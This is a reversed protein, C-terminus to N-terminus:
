VFSPVGDVSGTGLIIMQAREFRQRVLLADGSSPTQVTWTFAEDALLDGYRVDSDTIGSTTALSTMVMVTDLLGPNLVGGLRHFPKEGLQRVVEACTDEFMRAARNMDSKSLRTAGIIFNNLFQKMPRKYNNWGERMAFFRLILEIDRLRRDPSDTGVIVRWSKNRNLKELMRFYDGDYICKRIEMPNLGPEHNRLREFIYYINTGDDTDEQQVITTRLIADRLRVQDDKPLDRFSRGEWKRTIGRLRFVHDDFGGRLFRVVSLIRQLGDIILLKGTARDRYLFVEPVPLGRLFSEILKSALLDSWIYEKKFDPVSIEGTNWLQEYVELTMDSSYYSVGDKIPDSGRDGHEDIQAFVLDTTDELNFAPLNRTYKVSEGITHRSTDDQEILIEQYKLIRVIIRDPATLRCEEIVRYADNMRGSRRLLDVLITTSIGDEQGVSQGHAEAAVLMDAAKRRCTAAGAAHGKDDCAWAAHILSWAADAYRNAVCDLISKYLFSNALDPHHDYTGPPPDPRTTKDHLQRCYEESKVIAKVRPTLKSLDSSCYGCNHCRRVRTELMGSDPYLPRTDLYRAGFMITGTIDQDEPIDRQTRTILGRSRTHLTGSTSWLREEVGCLACTIDKCYAGLTASRQIM